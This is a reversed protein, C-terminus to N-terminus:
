CSPESDLTPTWARVTAGSKAFYAQWFSHMSLQITNSIRRGPDLGAGVVYVCVGTLKAIRGTRALRDILQDIQRRDLARRKLNLDDSPSYAWMNSALVLTRPGPPQSAFLDSAALLGGIIDTGPQNSRSAFLAKAQEKVGAAQRTLDLRQYYSNPDSPDPSFQHNVPWEITALASWQFPAAAVFGQDSAALNIEQDAIRLAEARQAPTSDLSMDALEIRQPVSASAAKRGPLACASCAVSIIVITSITAINKLQTM